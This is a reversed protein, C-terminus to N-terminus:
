KVVTLDQLQPIVEFGLLVEVEDNVSLDMYIPKKIEFSSIKTKFKAEIKILNGLSKARASGEVPSAKGKVKLLGGFANWKLPDDIVNTNKLANLVVQPYIQSEMYESRFHDDRISILSSVSNVDFLIEDASYTKTSLDINLAGQLGGRSELDFRGGLKHQLRITLTSTGQVIKFTEARLSFSLFWTLLLLRRTYEM